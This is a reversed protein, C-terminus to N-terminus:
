KWFQWWKKDSTILEKNQIWFAPTLANFTSFTIIENPFVITKNEIIDVILSFMGTGTVDKPIEDWEVNIESFWCDYYISGPGGQGFQSKRDERLVKEWWTIATIQFENSIIDKLFEKYNSRDVIIDGYGNGVPQAKYKVLIADLQKTNNKM